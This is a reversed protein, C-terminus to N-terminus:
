FDGPAVQLCTLGLSRWMDVVQNRDDLVFLVNYKDKIHESYIREKIISDKEQNGVPRMHIKDYCISNNDLWQQTEFACIGDRGSVVIIEFRNGSYTNIIDKIPHNVHDEGVKSWEYPSRNHMKALTGDIDCIIAWKLDPNYKISQCYVEKPKLFSTYMHMIVKGGVPKQRKADRKICEEVTADFFCIEFEAHYKEAFEKLRRENRPHLNTDDVVVSLGKELADCIIFDEIKTIFKEYPKGGFVSDDIMARLDDKNVRKYKQTRVLDKAYTSKGSAPLGKLMLLKHKPKM